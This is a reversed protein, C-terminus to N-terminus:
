DCSWGLSVLFLMGTLYLFDTNQHFPYFVPGSRYKMTAAPVVAVSGDPM